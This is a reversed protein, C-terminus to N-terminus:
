YPTHHNTCLAYHITYLAHHVTKDSYSFGIRFPVQFASFVVLFTTVLNCRFATTSDPNIANGRFCDIVSSFSHPPQPEEVDILGDGLASGKGNEQDAFSVVTGLENSTNRVTGAGAGAGGETGISTHVKKRGGVSEGLRLQQYIPEFEEFNISGDCNKDFQTVFHESVGGFGAAHLFDACQSIQVKDDDDHDLLGYIEKADMGPMSKKQLLEIITIDASAETETVTAKDVKDLEDATSDEASQRTRSANPTFTRFVTSTGNSNQENASNTSLEELGAWTLEHIEDLLATAAASGELLKRLATHKKRLQIM